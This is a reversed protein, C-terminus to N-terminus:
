AAQWNQYFTARFQDIAADRAAVAEAETKGSEIAKDFAKRGLSTAVAEVKRELVARQRALWAETYKAEDDFIETLKQELPKKVHRNFLKVVTAGVYFLGVVALGTKLHDSM